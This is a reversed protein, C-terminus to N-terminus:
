LMLLCYQAVVDIFINFNSIKTIQSLCFQVDVFVISKGIFRLFTVEM